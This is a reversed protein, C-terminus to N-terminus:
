LVIKHNLFELAKVVDNATQERASRCIQLFNTITLLNIKAIVNKNRLYNTKLTIITGLNLLLKTHLCISKNM